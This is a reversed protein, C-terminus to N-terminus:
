LLSNEGPPLALEPARMGPEFRYFKVDAEGRELIAMGAARLAAIEETADTMMLWRRPRRRFTQELSETRKTANMPRVTCLVCHSTLM